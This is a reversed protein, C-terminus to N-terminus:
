NGLQIKDCTPFNWICVDLSLHHISLVRFEKWLEFGPVSLRFMRILIGHQCLYVSNWSSLNVFCLFAYIETIPLHATLSESFMQFTLFHTRATKWTKYLVKFKVGIESQVLCRQTWDTLFGTMAFWFCFRAPHRGRTRSALQVLITEAFRVSDPAYGPWRPLAVSPWPRARFVTQRYLQKPFALRVLDTERDALRESVSPVALWAFSTARATLFNTIAQKYELICKVLKSGFPEERLFVLLRTAFYKTVNEEIACESVLKLITAAYLLNLWSYRRTLYPNINRFM